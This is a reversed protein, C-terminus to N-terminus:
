VNKPEEGHVARWAKNSPEGLYALVREAIFPGTRPDKDGITRLFAVTEAVRRLLAEHERELGRVLGTVSMPESM